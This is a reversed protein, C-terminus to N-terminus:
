SNDPTSDQVSCTQFSTSPILVYVKLKDKNRKRGKTELAKKNRGGERGTEKKEFILSLNKMFILRLVFDLFTCQKYRGSEM